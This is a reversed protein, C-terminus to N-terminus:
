VGESTESRRSSYNTSHRARAKENSMSVCRVFRSWGKIQRLALWRKIPFSDPFTWDTESTHACRVHTRSSRSCQHCLFLRNLGSGSWVLQTGYRWHCHKTGPMHEGGCACQCSGGSGRSNRGCTFRSRAPPSSNYRYLGIIIFHYYFHISSLSNACDNM